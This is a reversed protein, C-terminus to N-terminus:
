RSCSARPATARAPMAGPERAPPGAARALAGRATEDVEAGLHVSTPVKALADAFSLDAPADYVPNGGLILLTEVRGAAMDAALAAADPTSPPQPDVPQALYVIAGATASRPNIAHALRTCRPRSSAGAVVLVPGRPGGSGEGTGRAARARGASAGAAASLGPAAGGRGRWRRAFRRDPPM